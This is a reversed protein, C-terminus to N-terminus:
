QGYDDDLSALISKAMEESRSSGVLVVQHSFIVACGKGFRLGVISIASQTHTEEGVSVITISAFPTNPSRQFTSGDTTYRSSKAIAEKLHYTFDIGVRDTGTHSVYLYVRQSQVASNPISYSFMLIAILLVKKMARRM